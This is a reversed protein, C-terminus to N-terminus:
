GRKIRGKWEVGKKENRGKMREKKRGENVSEKSSWERRGRKIVGM